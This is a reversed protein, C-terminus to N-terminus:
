TCVAADGMKSYCYTILSTLNLRQYMLVVSTRGGLLGQNEVAYWSQAACTTHMSRKCSEKKKREPAPGGKYIAAFDIWPSGKM